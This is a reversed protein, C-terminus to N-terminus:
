KLKEEKLPRAMLDVVARKPPKNQYLVKYVEQTIPMDVKLKKSLKYASKTTEVGEAIMRMKTIVAKLKKGKGIAEGVSRNRSHPSFCTTVMDGFGSIGWFTSPNAGMKKGLRMIEALGRTMLAAKTNTGFGLGDSIGCALAIINKLAGGLEVGILDSHLYIRFTKTTLLAQLRKGSKKDKCALIAASPQGALVERAINPGSVVAVKLPSLEAKILQSSRKLSKSEIGKSLSLFTKNKLDVKTKKIKAIVSPIFKVPVALIITKNSLSSVLCPNIGLARPFKAGKLFLRNQRQSQMKLSHTKFVSYLEVALGKKALIIALTTGWSGAGIISIKEKM